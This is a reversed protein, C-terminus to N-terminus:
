RKIGRHTVNDVRGARLTVRAWFVGHGAGVDSVNVASEGRATGRTM